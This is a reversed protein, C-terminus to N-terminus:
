MLETTWNLQQLATDLERLRKSDDDVMKQLERVNVTSDIRIESKSYRDVKKSANDLFDRYVSIKLMLTDKSAIIETISRGNEDCVCANTKNIRGILDTLQSIDDDLEKMLEDPDESPSLGEQVKANNILRHRLQEVRRQLDARLNLAEALKM